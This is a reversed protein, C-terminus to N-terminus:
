VFRMFLLKDRQSTFKIGLRGGEVLFYTSGALLKKRKQNFLFKESLDVVM